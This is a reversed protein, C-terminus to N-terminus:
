AKPAPTNGKPLTKALLSICAEPQMASVAIDLTELSPKMGADVLLKLMDFTITSTELLTNLLPTGPRCQM